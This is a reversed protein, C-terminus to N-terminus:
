RGRRRASDHSLRRQQGQPHDALVLSPHPAYLPLHGDCDESVWGASQNLDTRWLNGPLWQMGAQDFDALAVNIDVQLASGVIDQSEDLVNEALGDTSVWVSQQEGVGLVKATHPGAQGVGVQLEVGEIDSGACYRDCTIRAQPVYSHPARVASLGWLAVADRVVSRSLRFPHPLEQRGPDKGAGASLGTRMRAGELSHRFDDRHLELTLVGCRVGLRLDPVRLEDLEEDGTHLVPVPRLVPGHQRVVQTVGCRIYPVSSNQGPRKM